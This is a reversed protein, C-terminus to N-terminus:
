RMGNFDRASKSCARDQLLHFIKESSDSVSFILHYLYFLRLVISSCHLDNTDFALMMMVFRSALQFITAKAILMPSKQRHYVDTFLYIFRFQVPSTYTADLVSCDADGSESM